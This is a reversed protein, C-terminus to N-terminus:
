GEILLDLVYAVKGALLLIPWHQRMRKHLPRTANSAVDLAEPHRSSPSASISRASSTTARADESAGEFSEM